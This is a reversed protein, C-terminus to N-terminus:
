VISCMDSIVSAFNGTVIPTPTTKNTMDLHQNDSSILFVYNEKWRTPSNKLDFIKTTPSFTLGV